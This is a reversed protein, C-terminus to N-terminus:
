QSPATVLSASWGSDSGARAKHWLTMHPTDLTMTYRIQVASQLSLGHFARLTQRFIVYRGRFARYTLMCKGWLLNLGRPVHAEIGLIKGKTFQHGRLENFHDIDYSGAENGCCPEQR